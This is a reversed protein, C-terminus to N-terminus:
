SRVGFAPPPDGEFRVEVEALPSNQWDEKMLRLITVDRREGRHLHWGKLVGEEVFGLKALAALSRENDPSAHASVRELGLPGFALALLLAKSERNAGSGWYPRGLWTGIVARRDRLSFESLGTIGILHDDEDAIAFELREGRERQEATTRIFQKAEAPASYPGWSFFRTVAPDSGHEFLLRADGPEPYRLSLEPGIVRM